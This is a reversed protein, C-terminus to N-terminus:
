GVEGPHLVLYYYCRKTASDAYFGDVEYGRELYRLCAYRTSARWRMGLETSEAKIQEIDWPIEIRVASDSPLEREVPVVDGEFEETNVIPASAIESSLRASPGSLVDSVRDDDLMWDVVFRDTGLGSHLLSGTDTGYMNPVYETAVAGLRNYNLHANRAVLPDFTWSVLKVGRELLFERQLEKLRRGIGLGEYKPEVALM